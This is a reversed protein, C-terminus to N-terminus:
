KFLGRSIKLSICRTSRGPPDAIMDNELRMNGVLATAMQVCVSSEPCMQITPEYKLNEASQVSVLARSMELPLPSGINTTVPVFHASSLTHAALLHMTVNNLLTGIDENRVLQKPKM